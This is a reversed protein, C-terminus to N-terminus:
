HPRRQPRVSGGQDLPVDEWVAVKTGAPDKVSVSALVDSPLTMDHSLALIWFGVPVSCLCPTSHLPHCPLAVIVAALM